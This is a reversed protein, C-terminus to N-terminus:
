AMWYTRGKSRCLAAEIRMRTDNVCKEEVDCGVFKRGLALAVVATTGGGLFPDCILQGPQTLRNVLDAIGSESQGWGHFRKDNDNTKSVSVDGFWEMAQGFLLVPKWTTNVKAQWQQVAQGGPTMYALTWRYTLHQCLRQYVEPLYSQGSMVAVLPVDAGACAEALESFVPLFEEPYPPDTIVADPKIGSAFLERCTCVRIDLISALSQKAEETINVQSETLRQIEEQKRIEKVAKSITMKGSSVAKAAVPNKKITQVKKVARKVTSESVGVQTAIQQATSQHLESHVEDIKGSKGGIGNPNTVRKMNREYLRAILMDRQDKSLNRRALQNADIWDMAEDRDAFEISKTKFPKKHGTCIKFRNHGDVLVGNWVDLPVRCGRSLISTELASYEEASLPPIMEEFKPDITINQM